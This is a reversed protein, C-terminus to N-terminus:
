RRLLIKKISHVNVSVIGCHVSPRDSPRVSLFVLDIDRMCASARYVSYFIVTVTMRYERFLTFESILHLYDYPHVCPPIQLPSAPSSGGLQIQPISLPPFPSLSPHPLGGAKSGGM